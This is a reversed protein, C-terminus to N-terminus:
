FGFVTALHKVLNELFHSNCGVCFTVRETNVTATKAFTQQAAM